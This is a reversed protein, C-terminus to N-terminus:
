FLIRLRQWFSLRHSIVRGLYDEFSVPIDKRGAMSRTQLLIPEVLRNLNWLYHCVLKDNLFIVVIDFRKLEKAGIEVVIDEGVEIVPLMSGSVVKGKFLSLKKLEDFQTRSTTM